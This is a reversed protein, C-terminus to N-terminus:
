RARGPCGGAVDVADGVSQGSAPNVDDVEVGPGVAGRNLMIISANRGGSRVGRREGLRALLSRRRARARPRRVARSCRGRWWRGGGRGRRCRGYGRLSRRRRGANLWAQPREQGDGIIDIRQSWFSDGLTERQSARISIRLGERSEPSSDFEGRRRRRDRRPRTPRVSAAPRRERTHRLFFSRRPPGVALDPEAVALMERVELLRHLKEIPPVRPRVRDDLLNLLEDGEDAVAITVDDPDIIGFALRRRGVDHHLIHGAARQGVVDLAERLAWRGLLDLLKEAFKDVAQDEDVFAGDDMAVQLGGVDQHVLVPPRLQGVEALGPM